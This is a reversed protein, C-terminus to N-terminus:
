AGLSSLELGCAELGLCCAELESPEESSRRLELGCAVLEMIRSGRFMQYRNVARPGLAAVLIYTNNPHTVHFAIQHPSFRIKRSKTVKLEVTFFTGSNNYGLLDPMGPISLNEIRNWIIQPTFEKLKKYLKQEEGM